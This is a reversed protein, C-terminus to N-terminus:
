RQDPLYSGHEGYDGLGNSILVASAADRQALRRRHDIVDHTLTGSPQQGLSQAGLDLLADGPEGLLVVLRAPSQHHAVAVVLRPLHQSAGARHLHGNRPDVVAPDIGVGTLAPPEARRNQRRPRFVGFILSTNGNSYKCPNDEPSKPGASPCNRPEDAPSDDETIVL